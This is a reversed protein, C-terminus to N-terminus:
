PNGATGRGPYETPASLHLHSQEAIFIDPRLPRASQGTTTCSKGPKGPKDIRVTPSSPCCLARPHNTASRWPRLQFTVTNRPFQDDFPRENGAGDCDSARLAPCIVARHSRFPPDLCGPAPPPLALLPSHAQHAFSRHGSPLTVFPPLTVSPPPPDDIAMCQRANLFCSAALQRSM